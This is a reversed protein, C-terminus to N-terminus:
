KVKFFPLKIINSCIRNEPEKQQKIPNKLTGPHGLPPPTVPSGQCNRPFILPIVVGRLFGIIAGQNRKGWLFACGRQLEIKELVQNVAQQTVLANAVVLLIPLLQRHPFRQPVRNTSPPTALKMWFFMPGHITHSSQISTLRYTQSSLM